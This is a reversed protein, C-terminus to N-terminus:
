LSVRSSVIIQVTHTIYVTNFRHAPDKNLITVLWFAFRVIVIEKAQVKKINEDIFSVGLIVDMALNNVMLFVVTRVPEEM